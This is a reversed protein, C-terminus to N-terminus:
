RKGTGGVPPMPTTNGGAGRTLAEIWQGGYVRYAEFGPGGLLPAIRTAAEQALAAAAPARQAPALSRMEGARRQIDQQVSYVQPVVAPPLEYRAAIRNLASYRPEMAQEFAAYRDPALVQKARENIAAIRRRTEEQTMAGPVGGLEAEVAQAVRFLTRFEEETPQFTALQSRLTNAISSSRLEYNELERPDLVRAVDSRMETELYRIKERDEPMILGNAEAYIESRLENYDRVIQQLAEAKDAPIDGFMRRQQFRTWPHEELGDSGLLEKVIRSQEERIQRFAAMVKPDLNRSGAQWYPPEEVGLFLGNLRSEDDEQLRAWVIARIATTPFGAARLRAVVDKLEGANVAAWATVDGAGREEAESRGGAREVAIASRAETWSAFSKAGDEMTFVPAAHHVVVAVLVVNAAASVGLLLPALKMAPGGVSGGDGGERLALGEGSRARGWTM